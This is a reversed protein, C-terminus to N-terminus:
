AAARGVLGSFLGGMTPLPLWALTDGRRVRHVLQKSIGFDAAVKACSREDAMIQAIMEATLKSRQRGIRRTALQRKVRGRMHGSKSIIAGAEKKTACAIHDPNVCLPNFCTSHVLHGPPITNGMALWVARRGPMSKGLMPSWIKPYRDGNGNQFVGGSWVWCGTEDCVRCRGKIREILAAGTMARGWTEASVSSASTKGSGKRPKADESAPLTVSSAKRGSLMKAKPADYGSASKVATDTNM